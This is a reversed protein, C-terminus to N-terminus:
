RRLEARYALVWLWDAVAAIAFMALGALMPAVRLRDGGGLDVTALALAVFCALMAAAIWRTPGARWGDVARGTVRRAWRLMAAVAVFVLVEAGIRWALPLGQAALLGGFVGGVALHYARPLTYDGVRRRAAQMQRLAEAADHRTRPETAESEMNSLM